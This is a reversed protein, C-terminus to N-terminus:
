PFKKRVLRQVEYLDPPPFAAYRTLEKQADDRAGQEMYSQVLLRRADLRAPNQRLAAACSEASKQWDQLRYHDLALGYHYDSNQANIDLARKWYPLAKKPEGLIGHLSAVAALTSEHRPQVELIHEFLKLAAREQRDLWLALGKAGLARADHPWRVLHPDLIPLALHAFLPNQPGQISMAVVLDRELAPDIPEAPDRHFPVLKPPREPAQASDKSQQPKRPVRHDTVSTHVIDSSSFRPMHCQICYDAPSTSQRQAPPASCATAGPGHCSLCRERFFRAKEQPKPIAHPDHCSVCSMAGRSKEYCTSSKMQEPHGVAHKSFVEPPPLFTTQFLHLPMGPRFEFLDRGHRVSRLEGQLHCQECVAERLIPALRAPQVITTDPKPVVEGKERLQVHLEGPGHCRECGIAYGKFVDGSFKNVSDPVPDVGNSHCFLCEKFIPREFHRNKKQYGPSLDWIGKQSYWSIPSQVLAGDRNILYSRGRTGSGLVFSVEEEHEYVVDGKADKKIERHFVKGDREKVEYHFGNAEFATKKSYDEIKFFDKVPGLAQGMPHHKFKEVIDLHCAACRADGVYQVHPRINAYASTFTLRPDPPLEVAPPLAPRPAWPRWLMLAVGAAALLVAAAVRLRWRRAVTGVPQGSQEKSEM